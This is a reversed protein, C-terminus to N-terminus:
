VWLKGDDNQADVCMGLRAKDKVKKNMWKRFEVFIKDVRGRKYKAWDITKGEKLLQAHQKNGKAWVKRAKSQLHPYHVVFEGGIQSFVYGSRRMQMIQTMKNKGYGTFVEQYPPLDQCLRV